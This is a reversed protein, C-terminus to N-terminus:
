FSINEGEGPKKASYNRMAQTIADKIHTPGGVQKFVFDRSESATRIRIDGYNILTPLIGRVDVEIDQIKELEFEYTVRSFLSMQEVSIVRRDTLIWVDLYYDALEMFIAVLFIHLFFVMIFFVMKILDVSESVFIFVVAFAAAVVIISFVVLPLLELALVFPHRRYVSIIKEGERVSLM